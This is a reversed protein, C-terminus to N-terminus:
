HSGTNLCLISILYNIASPVFSPLFEQEYYWCMMALILNILYRGLCQSSIVASIFISCKTPLFPSSFWLFFIILVPFCSLFKSSPLSINLYFSSLLFLFCFLNYVKANKYYGLRKIYDFLYRATKWIMSALSCKRKQIWRDKMIIM